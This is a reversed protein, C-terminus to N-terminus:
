NAPERIGERTASVTRRSSQRSTRRLDAAVRAADKMVRLINGGWLKSIQEEDYGRRLLERTVAPSESQDMWGLVGGGGDFDSAIGVHDIGAIEVAHDIHDVFEAVTPRPYEADVRAIADALQIRQGPTLRAIAEPDGLGIARRADALAKQRAPNPRGIFSPHAVMQAVGGRAALARLQEDDLNRDHATVARASSHSAIVPARSLAVVQLMTDRSAHSVDVMIGARNLAVVLERGLGTLGSPSRTSGDSSAGPWSSGAFQNDGAHTIGVYMVGRSAWLDVDRVSQGLPYANEMGVLVAARGSARIKHIDGASRALAVEQPYARVLRDIARWRQEAMARASAFGEEDLSSQATYVILFAADIGGARMKPLDYQAATFGAPDHTATAFDLPIDVHTDVALVRDHIRLSDAGDFGREAAFAAAAILFSAV